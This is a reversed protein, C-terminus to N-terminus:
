SSNHHLIIALCFIYISQLVTYGIYKTKSGRPMKSIGQCNCESGEWSHQQSMGLGDEGPPHKGEGGGMPPFFSRNLDGSPLQPTRSHAGVAVCLMTSGSLSLIRSDQLTKRINNKLMEELGLKQSPGFTQLASISPSKTTIGQEESTQRTRKSKINALKPIQMSEPKNSYRKGQMAPPSASTTDM